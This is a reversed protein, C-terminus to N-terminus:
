CPNEENIFSLSSEKTTMAFLPSEGNLLYNHLIVCAGVWKAGKQAREVTSIPVKLIGICHKNCVRVSALHQNLKKRLQPISGHPPKKFALVPNSEMPFCSDGILYQGPPFLQAKHQHLECSNWLQLMAVGYSSKQLHSDQPDISPKEDLPISTGDIFGVCNRLMQGPLTNGKKFFCYQMTYPFSLSHTFFKFIVSGESMIFFCTLVGVSAGNGFKGMQRLAVNLLDQIPRQPVNTIIKYGGRPSALPKGL